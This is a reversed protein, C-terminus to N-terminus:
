VDPEKAKFTKVLEALAEEAEPALPQLKEQLRDPNPLYEGAARRKRIDDIFTSMNNASNEVQKVLGEGLHKATENLANTANNIGGIQGIVMHNTTDRITRLEHVYFKEM